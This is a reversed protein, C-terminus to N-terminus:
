AHYRKNDSGSVRNRAEELGGEAVASILENHLERVSCELLLKPVRTKIGEGDEDILLSDRAIPSERVNSNRLVWDVVKQILAEDM